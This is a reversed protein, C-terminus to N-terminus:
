CASCQCAFGSGSEPTERGASIIDDHRLQMKDVFLPCMRCPFYMGLSGLFGFARVSSFGSVKLMTCPENPMSKPLGTLTQPMSYMVEEPCPFTCFLCSYSNNKNEPPPMANRRCLFPLRSDPPKRCRVQRSGTGLRQGSLLSVLGSQEGLFVSADSIPLGVDIIFFYKIGIMAVLRASLLQKWLFLRSSATSPSCRRCGLPVPFLHQCMVGLVRCVAQFEPCGNKENFVHRSMVAQGARQQFAIVGFHISDAM